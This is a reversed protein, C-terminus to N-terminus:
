AFEGLAARMPAAVDTLGPRQARELRLGAKRADSGAIRAASGLRKHNGWALAAMTPNAALKEAKEMADAEAANAIALRSNALKLEVEASSIARSNPHYQRVGKRLADVILRSRAEVESM